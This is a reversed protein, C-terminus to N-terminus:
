PHRDKQSRNKLFDLQERDTEARNQLASFRVVCFTLIGIMLLLILVLATLLYWVM